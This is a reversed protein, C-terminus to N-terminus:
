EGLKGQHIAKRLCVLGGIIFGLVVGIDSIHYLL